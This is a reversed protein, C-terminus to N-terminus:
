DRGGDPCAADPWKGAEGGCVYPEAPGCDCPSDATADPAADPKFGVGTSMLPPPADGCAIALFPLLLIARSNM